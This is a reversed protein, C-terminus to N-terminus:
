RATVGCWPFAQGFSAIAVEADVPLFAGVVPPCTPEVVVIGLALLFVVPPCSPWAEGGQSAREM